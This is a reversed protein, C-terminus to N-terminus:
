VNVDLSKEKYVLDVMRNFRSRKDEIDLRKPIKKIFEELSVHECGKIYAGGQTANVFSIGTCNAIYNEIWKKYIYLNRSTKVKGNLFYNEVEIPNDFYESTFQLYNHTQPHHTRNDSYALDQGIFCIPNGGLKVMWDLLATAVSGGTQILPINFKNALEEAKKFGKQLLMIKPGPYIIDEVVEPSVTGLYFLPITSLIEADIDIFQEYLKVSPDTIMIIDPIIGNIVLPKLATGVCCVFFQNKYSKLTQLSKSLSPGASVLIMPVNHLIGNLYQNYDIRAKPLNDSFNAELQMESTLCASSNIRYVQLLVKLEELHKPILHLAPPYIILYSKEIDINKWYNLICKKDESVFFSIRKNNIIDQITTNSKIFDFFRRNWEWVTIDREIQRLLERVHYGCGLGYVIVQNCNTLNNLHKRIFRESEKVPDYTSHLWFTKRGDNFACTIDGSKAKKIFFPIRKDM